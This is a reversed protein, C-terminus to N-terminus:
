DGALLGLLARVPDAAHWRGTGDRWAPVATRGIPPRTVDVTLAPYHVLSGDPVPVGLVDCTLVVETLASWRVPVGGSPDVTAAVVESALPLDLLEALAEPDGGVVVEGPPLVTALWTDDVVVAVDVPVVSGDVARVHEPLTLDDAPVTDAAVADSLATHARAVLAVDPHRAPDILRLLLDDADATDRVRLDARVGIAALVTEDPIAADPIRDIRIIRTLIILIDDYLADLEVASPLRWHSPPRGGLRAHRALWWATYGDPELLAARTEREAALLALAAPWADDDILDLDRVAVMRTPAVDLGDWWGEEDHLDHDPGAPADDTLVVFGDVVGAATLVERPYRAAWAPDLVDLGADPALLPRLAADPLVLEDARTVHGAASPLALAALSGPAAGAEAVLGLVAAALPAPDLGADADDVSREVAALLAPDALLTAPEAPRAGLRTLLPHGADPHAIHLGPLDLGAVSSTSPLLVTAPGAATRGDVLPVPLARLEDVLGPVDEVLPALEAYLSRWWSPPRQEIGFLRLVLETVTLRPVRLAAPPAPDAAVLRDFGADALRARLSAPAGPLDLWQAADPALLGGGAAPLWRHRRLADVLLERLRGDLESRPFGAPPVLAVRQDPAVADLLDLYGAVAGALVADTAAGPRIRRRDPEVPVTAILRAPLGLPETTPTPAHLVDESRPDPVGDPRLPLAWCATWSRRARQETAQASATDAALTGTTRALLWRQGAIEVEAVGPGRGPATGLGAAVASRRIPPLEGVTIEALDPLALLLDAASATARDLLAQGDVGARLPLRVETDYGPAPTADGVEWVLRLVPPESRRALEAAPGALESVAAATRAASFAVGGGASVIWPEASLPLVAAFGVGFMGVADADDRKASARLSALAAVGAADLPAGTNAVRLEGDVLALRLRGPM